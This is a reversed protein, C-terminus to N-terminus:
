GTDRYNALWQLLRLARAVRCGAETARYRDSDLRLLGLGSLSELRGKRKAEGVESFLNIAAAETMTRPREVEALIAISYGIQTLSWLQLSLLSYIGHLAILGSGAILLRHNGLVGLLLVLAGFVCASVVHYRLITGEQQFSPLHRLILIYVILHLVLYVGAAACVESTEMQHGDNKLYNPRGIQV